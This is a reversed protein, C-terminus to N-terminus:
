YRRKEGDEFLVAKTCIVGATEQPRMDALRAMNSTKFEVAGLVKPIQVDDIAVDQSGVPYGLADVIYVTAHAMRIIKGTTNVFHVRVSLGGSVRQSWAEKFAFVDASGKVCDEALARSATALLVSMAAVAAAAWWIAKMRRARTGDWDYSM